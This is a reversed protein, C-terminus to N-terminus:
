QAPAGLLERKFHDLILHYLHTKAVAGSISHTKRPYLMLDFQKGADIFAQTMQITNQLHVNDDGTGHAILLHSHLSGAYNVPSSRKYAEANDRPLGMYRETYISDYNHWDTVPAVAVSARFIPSHTTAMLTMFGGYSWGWWGLHQGDLQPNTELTQEVAAYQDKIELDGFDHRIAAAFKQGRGAMGRNDVHLVAIGERALVQDFLFAPGGWEDVVSQAGPGGYPNNVLPARKEATAQQPLLLTGLLFTGDDAKFRVAKPPILGYEETPHSNWITSCGVDPRCLSLRPPTMVGSFTDAYWESKESFSVHHTGPERSLRKMGTGDLKIAYVHKQRVDEANATFYVTEQKVTEIGSVEFDGKTIQRELTAPHSLPQKGDFDYLYIHTHGDRWSTWLFKDGSDLINFDDNVPVWNPSKETLMLQSHGNAVDVFYLELTDQLRDLVQAWVIGNKLWGFRPIYFDKAERPRKGTSDAESRQIPLTIWSTKGGHASVVGLRVVPNPDGAKPYKEREVTPHTPLFDTIPYSPVPTENMQLYVIQKSDPSWFYNSRVDLEEAYVWDVEGNLVNEDQDRTLPMQFTEGLNQVILNHKRVFSIKKGDPSFKPDLSPEATSSIRVAVGNSLTYLWLQGQADFMIQNGDPSWHYQAVKYRTRWERTREDKIKLMSPALLGMKESHVLVEPKGTAVDVSVLEARDGADDRLIYSLHRGDAAWRMDEPARGTVGGEAFIAEITLPKSATQAAAFASAFLILSLRLRM